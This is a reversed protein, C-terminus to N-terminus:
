QALFPQLLCFIDCFAAAVADAIVGDRPVNSKDIDMKTTRPKPDAPRGQLCDRFFSAAASPLDDIIYGAAKAWAQM